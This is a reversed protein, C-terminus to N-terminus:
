LSEKNTPPNTHRMAQAVRHEKEISEDLVDAFAYHYHARLQAAISRIADDDFVIQHMPVRGRHVQTEPRPTM